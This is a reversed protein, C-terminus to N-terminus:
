PVNDLGTTPLDDQSACRYGVDFDFAAPRDPLFVVEYIPQQPLEDPSMPIKLKRTM